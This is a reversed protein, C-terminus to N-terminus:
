PNPKRKPGFIDDIVGSIFSAFPGKQEEAEVTVKDALESVKSAAAASVKKPLNYFDVEQAHNDTVDSLASPNHIHTGNASVTHIQPKLTAESESEHRADNAHDLPPQHNDPLLPVRMPGPEPSPFFDERPM